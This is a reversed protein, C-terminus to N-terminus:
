SAVHVGYTWHHSLYSWVKCFTKKPFEDLAVKLMVAIIDNWIEAKVQTSIALQCTITYGAAVCNDYPSKFLLHLSRVASRIHDDSMKSKHTQWFCIFNLTPLYTEIFNFILSFLIIPFIIEFRKFSSFLLWSVLSDPASTAALGNCVTSAFFNVPIRVDRENKQVKPIFFM